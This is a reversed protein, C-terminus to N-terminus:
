DTRFKTDFVGIRLTASMTSLVHYIFIGYLIVEAVLIGAMIAPTVEIHCALLVCLLLLLVHGVFDCNLRKKCIHHINVTISYHSICLATIFLLAYCYREMVYTDSLFTVMGAITLIPVFRLIHSIRSNNKNGVLKEDLSSGKVVVMLNKITIVGTMAFIIIFEVADRLTHAYPYVSLISSISTDWFAVGKFFSILNLTVVVIEVETVGALPTGFMLVGQFYEIIQFTLFVYGVLGFMLGMARGNPVGIAKMAAFILCSGNISDCGHDFLQGIPSNCGLRRAQKGDLMDMYMYISALIAYMLCAYHSTSGDEEKLVCLLVVGLVDMVFGFLTIGNPSIWKPVYPLTKGTIIRLVNDIPTYKGSKYKYNRINELDVEEFHPYTSM